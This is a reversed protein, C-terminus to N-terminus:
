FIKMNEKELVRNEILIHFNIIGEVVKPKFLKKIFELSKFTIKLIFLLNNM